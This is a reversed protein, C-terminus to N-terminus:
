DQKSDYRLFRYLVNYRQVPKNKTTRFAAAHTAGSAVIGHPSM